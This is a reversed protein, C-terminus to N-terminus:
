LLEILILTIGHNPLIISISYFINEFSKTTSTNNQYWYIKIQAIYCKSITYIM